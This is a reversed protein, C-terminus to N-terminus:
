LAVETISEDCSLLLGAAKSIRISRLFERYTIGTARRFFKSFATREMHVIRAAEALEVRRDLNDSLHVLLPGLRSYYEFALWVSEPLRRALFGDSRLHAAVTSVAIAPAQGKIDPMLPFAMDKEM